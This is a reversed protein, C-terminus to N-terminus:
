AKVDESAQAPSDASKAGQRHDIIHRALKLIWEESAPDDHRGTIPNDKEFDASIELGDRTCLADLLGRLLEADNPAGKERPQELAARVFCDKAELLKRMGASKEPGDPLQAELQEALVGIPKSIVHLHLPLHNYAFYKLVNSPM